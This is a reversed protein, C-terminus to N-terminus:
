RWAAHLLPARDFKMVDCNFSPSELASEFRDFHVNTPVKVQTIYGGSNNYTVHSPIEAEIEFNFPDKKTVVFQKNNLIAGIPGDIGTLTVAEGTELNHPTEELCTIVTTAKGSQAGSSIHAVMSTAAVEGNTDTVVFSDGFDCFVSGYVGRADGIIVAINRDHTFASVNHQTELSQDVLVVVTHAALLEHTIPGEYLNVNVYPNLEKLADVCAHARPVGIHSENLYFHSALDNWSTAVSDCITVGKVGALIINKAVEVGLGNLGVLLINSASMKQQAEHGYVYLQRNYLEDDIQGPKASIAAM